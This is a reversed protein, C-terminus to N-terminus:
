RRHLSLRQDGTRYGGPQQAHRVSPHAPRLSRRDAQTTGAKEFWLPELDKVIPYLSGRVGYYNAQGGLDRGGLLMTNAYEANANLKPGQSSLWPSRLIRHEPDWNPAEADEGIFMAAFRIARRMNESVTPDALRQHM